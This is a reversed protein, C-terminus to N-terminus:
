LLWEIRNLLGESQRIVDLTSSKELQSILNDLGPTDSRKIGALRDVLDKTTPRYAGFVAKDLESM